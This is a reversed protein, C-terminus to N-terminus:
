DNTRSHWPRWQSKDTLRKLPWGDIVFWIKKWFPTTVFTEMQKELIRVRRQLETSNVKLSNIEAEVSESSMPFPSIDATRKFADTSHVKVAANVLLQEKKNHM